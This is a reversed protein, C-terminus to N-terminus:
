PAWRKALEAIVPDGTERALRQVDYCSEKHGLSCARSYAHAACRLRPGDPWGLVAAPNTTCEAPMVYVARVKPGSLKDTLTAAGVIALALVTGMSVAALVAGLYKWIQM